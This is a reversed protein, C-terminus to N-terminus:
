KRSFLIFDCNFKRIIAMIGRNCGNNNDNNVVDAVRSLLSSTLLPRDSSIFYMYNVISPYGSERKSPDIALEDSFSLHVANCSVTHM